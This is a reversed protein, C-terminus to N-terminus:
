FPQPHIYFDCECSNFCNYIEFCGKSAINRLSDVKKISQLPIMSDADYFGVKLLFFKLSTGPNTADLSATLNGGSRSITILHM